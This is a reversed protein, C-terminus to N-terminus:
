LWRGTTTSCSRLVVHAGYKWLEACSCSVLTPPFPIWWANGFYNTCGPLEDQAPDRWYCDPGVFHRQIEHAVPLFWEKDPGTTLRVARDYEEV